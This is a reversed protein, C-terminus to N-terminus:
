LNFKLPCKIQLSTHSSQQRWRSGHIYISCTVGFDQLYLWSQACNKKTHKNRKEVNRAVTGMMLLFLQIQAVRPIQWETHIVTQYAPHMGSLRGCVTVFVVHWMSVTIERSSPCMTAWFMCLLSIFMNLFITCRTPKIKLIICSHMTLLVYIVGFHQYIKFM